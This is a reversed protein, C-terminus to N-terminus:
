KGNVSLNNSGMNLHSNVSSSGGNGAAKYINGMSQTNEGHLCSFFSSSSNKVNNSGDKHVNASLSSGIAGSGGSCASSNCSITSTVSSSNTTSTSSISSGTNLRIHGVTGFHSHGLVAYHGGLNYHDINGCSSSLHREIRGIGHGIVNLRGYVRAGNTNRYIPEDRIQEYINEYRVPPQYQNLNYYNQSETDDFSRQRHCSASATSTSTSTNYHNCTVGNCRFANFRPNALFLSKYNLRIPKHLTEFCVLM